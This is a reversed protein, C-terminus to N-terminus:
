AQREDAEQYSTSRRIVWLSISKKFTVRLHLDPTPDREPVGLSKQMLRTVAKKVADFAALLGDQTKSTEPHLKRLADEEFFFSV